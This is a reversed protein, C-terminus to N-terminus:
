PRLVRAQTIPMLHPLAYHVIFIDHPARIRFLIRCNLPHDEPGSRYDGNYNM